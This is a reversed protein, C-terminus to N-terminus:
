KYSMQIGLLCVFQDFEYVSHVIDVFNMSYTYYAFYYIYKWGLTYIIKCDQKADEYSM